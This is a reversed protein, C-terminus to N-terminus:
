QFPIAQLQRKIDVDVERGQMTLTGVWIPTGGDGGEFLRMAGIDNGGERCDGVMEGGDSPSLECAISPPAGQQGAAPLVTLAALSVVGFLLRHNM